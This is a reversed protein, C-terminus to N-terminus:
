SCRKWNHNRQTGEFMFIGTYNPPPHQIRVLQLLETKTMEEEYNINNRELQEQIVDKKSALTPPKNM